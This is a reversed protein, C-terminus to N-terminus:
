KLTYAHIHPSVCAEAHTYLNSFIRHLRKDEGPKEHYLTPLWEVLETFYKLILRLMLALLFYLCFQFCSSQPRRLSSDQVSLRVWTHTCVGSLIMLVLITSECINENNNQKHNPPFSLPLPYTPPLSPPFSPLFSDSICLGIVWILLPFSLM